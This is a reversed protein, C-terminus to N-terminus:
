SSKPHCVPCSEPPFSPLLEEILYHDTTGMRYEPSVTGRRWVTFSHLAQSDPDLLRAVGAISSYSTVVDEGIAVVKASIALDRDEPTVFRFDQKKGDPVRELKAFPIRPLHREQVAMALNQGGTPVGLIVNPSVAMMEHALLALVRALAVEDQWLNGMELKVTAHNGNAFIFHGKIFVGASTILNKLEAEQPVSM